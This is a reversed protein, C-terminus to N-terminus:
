LDWVGANAIDIMERVTLTEVDPCNTFYKFRVYWYPRLLWPIRKEEAFKKFDDRPVYIEFDRIFDEIFFFREDEHVKSWDLDNIVDMDDKIKEEPIKAIRAIFQRIRSSMDM